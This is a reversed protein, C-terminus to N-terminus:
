LYIFIFVKVCDQCELGPLKKRCEKRTEANDDDPIRKLFIILKRNNLFFFPDYKPLVM